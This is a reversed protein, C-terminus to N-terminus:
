FTNWFKNGTRLRRARDNRVRNLCERREHDPTVDDDVARTKASSIYWGSVKEFRKEYREVRMGM